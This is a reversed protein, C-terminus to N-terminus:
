GHKAKLARGQAASRMALDIIHVPRRAWQPTIVLKARGTLHDAINKYYSDHKGKPHKGTKVVIKGTKTATRTTWGAPRDPGGFYDVTYSGRTGHFAVPPRGSTDLHSISLNVMAGNAFRVIATAEDENMDNACSFRKPVKSQWHGNKAYGSVEAVDSDVIQLAYELLHVGWDYMIGGSISRSSRWWDRPMAHDGMHLEVRFVDGIAGKNVIQDYARM